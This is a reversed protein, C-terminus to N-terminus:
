SRSAVQGRDTGANPANSPEDIAVIGGDSAARGFPSALTGVHIFKSGRQEFGSFRSSRLMGDVSAV